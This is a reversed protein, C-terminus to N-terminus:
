HARTSHWVAYVNGVSDVAIGRVQEGQNLCTAYSVHSPPTEENSTQHNM